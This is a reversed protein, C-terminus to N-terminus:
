EGPRNPCPGEIPCADCWSLPREQNDPCIITEPAPEKAKPTEIWACLQDYNEKDLEKSSKMGREGLWIVIDAKTKDSANAITFLRKIQAENIPGGKGTSGPKVLMPAEVVPKQAQPPTPTPTPPKSAEVPKSDHTNTSDADKTDDIAFLGNLAYKRAYSSAAGTIQSADMGKKTEEERAYAPVAVFHKELCDQLCATAKVYYRDGIHVLEDHLTLINEGLLPKVAELIDECSRYKYGGFKNLQGKPAKLTRQIEALKEHIM